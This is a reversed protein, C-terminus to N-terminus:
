NSSLRAARKARSELLFRSNWRLPFIQAFAVASAHPFFLLDRRESQLGRDPHCAKTHQTRPRSSLGLFNSSARMTNHGLPLSCGASKEGSCM